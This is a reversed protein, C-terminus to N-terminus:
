SVLWKALDICAPLAGIARTVPYSAIILVAACGTAPHLRRTSAVDYLLFALVCLDNLIFTLSLGGREIVELPLRAIAPALIALNAMLMFRSHFDRQRRYAYGLAVLAVFVLLGGLSTALFSLAAPAGQARRASDIATAIGIALILLGLAMGWMGVRRHLAVRRTAILRVQLMFLLLWLTMVLGHLHLLASLADGGFVGKLYYTQAFGAFALLLVLGAIISQARPQNAGNPKVTNTQM